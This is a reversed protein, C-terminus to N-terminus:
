LGFVVLLGTNYEGMLRVTNLEQQMGVSRFDSRLRGGLMAAVYQKGGTMYSVLGANPVKHTYFSWLETMHERDLAIIKGDVQTTFLLGGATALVGSSNPYQLITEKVVKGTRVDIARVFGNTERHRTQTWTGGTSRGFFEEKPLQRTVVYDACGTEAGAQYSLMRTQDFSPPWFTPTGGHFPCTDRGSNIDGYRQSHGAYSQLAVNPNYDLPKGTKPDLGRTWTVKPVHAEAGLFEGTVRDLTYYFGNRSWAGMVKRPRGGWEVDYLVKVSVADYDWAENPIEQFYWKLKGTEADLAVNSLTYLNDGPRYEPNGWPSPDGTGVILLNQQPDYSASNFMSGGGALYANWTDKWTEHGPTGPGPVAWWRWLLRGDEASHAAAWSRSGGSSANQVIIRDKLAVPAASFREVTIVNGRGRGYEMAGADQASRVVVDFIPEGTEKNVRILRGDLNALMYISDGLLAASRQRGQAIMEQKSDYM